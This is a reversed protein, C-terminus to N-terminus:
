ELSLGIFPTQDPCTKKVGLDSNAIMIISYLTIWEWDLLANFELCVHRRLNLPM